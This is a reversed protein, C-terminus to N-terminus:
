DKADRIGENSIEYVAEAEPLSPSDFIKAIRQDGRGKRLQLRTTSAHALV